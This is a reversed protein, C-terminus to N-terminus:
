RTNPRPQMHTKLLWQRFQVELIFVKIVKKEPLFERFKNTYVELLKTERQEYNIYKELLESIEEESMNESNKLFYTTTSRREQAILNKRNQYDNYVPWFKRAEQDSLNLRENFYNIKQKQLQKLKEVKDTQAFSKISFLLLLSFLIFTRM